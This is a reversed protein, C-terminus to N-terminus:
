PLCYNLLLKLKSAKSHAIAALEGQHKLMVFGENKHAIGASGGNKLAAFQQESLEIEPQIQLATQMELGQDWTVTKPEHAKELSFDGINLRSLATLYGCTGLASALDRGLSRVYTGSSCNVEFEIEDDKLWFAKMEHITVKRTPMELAKGERALKYARKGDIHIASYIPPVQEIEGLFNEEILSDLKTKKLQDPYDCPLVKTEPDLSETTAGLKLIARYRKSQHMFYDQFKCARASLVLLLGSAFPDLTGAHGLKKIGLQRKLQSLVQNSSLGSPKHILFLKDV